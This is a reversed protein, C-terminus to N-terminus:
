YVFPSGSRAAWTRGFEPAAHLQRSTPMCAGHRCNRFELPLPPGRGLLSFLSLYPSSLKHGCKTSIFATSRKNKRYRNMINKSQHNSHLSRANIIPKQLRLAPLCTVMTGTSSQRTVARDAHARSMLTNPCAPGIQLRPRCHNSRMTHRSRLLIPVVM